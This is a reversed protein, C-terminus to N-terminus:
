QSVLRSCSFLMLTQDYQALDPQGKAANLFCSSYSYFTLYSCPLVFLFASFSLFM